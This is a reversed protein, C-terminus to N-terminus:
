KRCKEIRESVVQCTECYYINGGLYAQRTIRGGCIPCPKNLTKNSMLTRYGGAQGFVDRETDREGRATMEHLTRRITWFLYDRDEETLTSMKRKPHIKANFLIDQLVGNGLGPFRQETALFAKASLTEKANSVLSQFYASDFADSLPSPKERAVDYYTNQFEGSEFAWLGGYM